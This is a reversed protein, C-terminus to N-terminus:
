KLGWTIAYHRGVQRLIAKFPICAPVSDLTPGLKVLVLTTSVDFGAALTDAKGGFLHTEAQPILTPMHQPMTGSVQAMVSTSLGECHSRRFALKSVISVIILSFFYSAATMPLEAGGRRHRKKGSSQYATHM